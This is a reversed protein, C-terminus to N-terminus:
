QQSRDLIPTVKEVAKTLEAAPDADERTLVAQVVTDLAAYLEQGAVPPESIFEQTKVGEIYTAFNNWDVNSSAKEAATVPDSVAPAFFPLTPLGAVLGDAKKKAARETALAADYKPRLYFYDIWKVAAQRQEPTAKPSVVAVTGGLLTGNGSGSPLTTQGYQEPKGAFKALYSSYLNPAGIMMAMKGSAFDRLMDDFNRLHQTGMSKDQWRMAKLLDLASRTPVDDFAPVYKGGEEKEMRGGYSYTMTTLMWGGTNSTAHMGFGPVGTKDSITKAAARVEEWTTPPKDPDLGAKTFLDRNYVLGSAYAETPLGYVKGDPTSAPALVRKDFDSKALVKLDATLDAVQGRKIMAPPDTLPIRFVTELQGAALRAAFTKVDYQAESPKLKITPNAKEFAAVQALFNKQSEAQTSPPMGSVTIEIKGDAGTAAKDGGCAAVALLLLGAAGTAAARTLRPNM